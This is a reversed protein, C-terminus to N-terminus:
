MEQADTTGTVVAGLARATLLMAPMMTRDVWYWLVVSDTPMAGRPQGLQVLAFPVFMGVFMTVCFLTLRDTPQGILAVLAGCWLLIGMALHMYPFEPFPNEYTAGLRKLTDGFYFHFPASNLAVSRFRSLQDGYSMFLGNVMGAHLEAHRRISPENLADSLQIASQRHREWLQVRDAPTTVASTYIDPAIVVWFLAAAIWTQRRWLWDARRLVLLTLFLVPLMLATLEKCLFGLACSVSALYLWRGDGKSRDSADLSHLFRSFAFMALAVFCLDFSLDIATASVEIHYREIALLAAAILGAVHGWWRAGILYLLLITTVGFIVSMLRMEFTTRGFLITGARILYIPVAGHQAVRIPLHDWSITLAAPLFEHAEIFELERESASVLRLYGGLALVALLAIRSWVRSARRQGRAGVSM